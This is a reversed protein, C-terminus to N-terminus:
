QTFWCKHSLDVTFGVQNLGSRWKEAEMEKENRGEECTHHSDAMIGTLMLGAAASCLAPLGTRNGRAGQQSCQLPPPVSHSLPSSKIGHM